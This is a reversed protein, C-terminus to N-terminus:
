KLYPNQPLDIVKFSHLKLLKRLDEDPETKFILAILMTYDILGLRCLINQIGIIIRLKLFVRNGKEAKASDLGKFYYDNMGRFAVTKLNIGLAIKEIERRSLRYVYNGVSEFDHKSSRNRIIKRATNKISRLPIQMFGSDIYSDGPEIFVIGKQAVRLMEYLAIIPRPFHHYSEKCLVFDFSEDKFSLAEANEKQYQNIFSREKAVKLLVDSIDTAIVNIGKEQLYHADSGYRGDGVTLWSADPYREILPLLNDFLRQHRWGDATGQTCWSYGTNECEGGDIYKTYHREHNNYSKEIFNSESDM